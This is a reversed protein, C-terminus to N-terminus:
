HCIRNNVIHAMKTNKASYNGTDIELKKNAVAVKLM